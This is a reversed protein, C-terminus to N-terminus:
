WPYGGLAALQPHGGSELDYLSAGLAGDRYAVDLCRWIERGSPLGHRGGETAMNYDQGIPAVPRLRALAAIATSVAVGPETCSWYVMPAFADVFPAEAAYPYAGLSLSTPRPVIAVVPKDAAAARVLSLYYAVRRSTLYTGEARSEIDAGFGDAGARLAAAARTADAAPNSLTPFDWAIVAIGSAHAAGLLAGLTRGGYFGDHSSGTRVWIQRLGAARATAVVKSVDLSSGPWVTLWIGKGSIASVDVHRPTPAKAIPVAAERVIPPGLPPPPPGPPLPPPPCPEPQVPAAPRPYLLRAGRPARGVSAKGPASSTLSTATVRAARAGVPTWAIALGCAAALGRRFPSRCREPVRGNKGDCALM